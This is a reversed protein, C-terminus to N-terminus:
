ELVKEVWQTINAASTSNLLKGEAWDIQPYTKKLTAVSNNISSGGSTAFPIM